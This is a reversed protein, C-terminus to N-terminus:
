IGVINNVSELTYNPKLYPKLSNVNYHYARTSGDNDKMLLDVQIRNGFKLKLAEIVEQSGFFQEVFHKPLIKRGEMKERAQVFEWALEPRQYVFIILVDRRKDLSRLINKEAVNYSALTGDLLFSQSNNFIYDIAREVLIVVARQFLYSNSGDYEDFEVRLDDPDLRLVKGQGDSISAVLEKSSETKGAGPSGSMFVSVPDKEPLYITKDTIRRCIKTRNRKAFSVARKIVETEAEDFNM